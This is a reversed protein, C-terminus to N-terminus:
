TLAGEPWWFVADITVPYLDPEGVFELLSTQCVDYFATEARETLQDQRRLSREKVPDTHDEDWRPRM